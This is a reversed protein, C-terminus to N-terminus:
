QREFDEIIKRMITNCNDVGPEVCGPEFCYNGINEKEFKRIVERLRGGTAVTPESM